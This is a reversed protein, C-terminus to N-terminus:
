SAHKKLYVRNRVLNGNEYIEAFGEDLCRSFHDRTTYERIYHHTSEHMVNSLIKKPENMEWTFVKSEFLSYFATNSKSNSHKKQFDKFQEFSEFVQVKLTRRKERRLGMGEFFEQYSHEAHNLFTKLSSLYPRNHGPVELVWSKGQLQVGSFSQLALFMFGIFFLIVSLRKFGM